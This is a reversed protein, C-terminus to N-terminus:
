IIPVKHPTAKVKHLELTIGKGAAMPVLAVGSEVVPVSAGPSEWSIIMAMAAAPPPPSTSPSTSQKRNTLYSKFWTITAGALGIKQLKQCLITHNITDFAKAFDLYTVLTISGGEIATYM